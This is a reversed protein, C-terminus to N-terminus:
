RSIQLNSHLKRKWNCPGQHTHERRVGGLIAPDDNEAKIPRIRRKRRFHHIRSASGFRAFSRASPVKEGSLDLSGGCM